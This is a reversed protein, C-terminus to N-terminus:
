QARRLAGPKIKCFSRTLRRSRKYCHTGQSLSSLLVPLPDAHQTKSRNSNQSQRKERGGRCRQDFGSLAAHVIVFAVEIAAAADIGGIGAAAPTGGGALGMDGGARSVEVLAVQIAAPPDIGRM